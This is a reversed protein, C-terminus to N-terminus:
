KKLERIQALLASIEANRVTISQRTVRGNAYTYRPDVLEHKLKRIEDVLRTIGQTLTPNFGPKQEADYAAQELLSLEIDDM